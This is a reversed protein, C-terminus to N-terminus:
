PASAPVAAPHGPVGGLPRISPVGGGKMDGTGSGVPPDGRRELARHADHSVVTDLHGLLAIRRNGTGRLRALFDPAYGQTSSPLREIEAYPPVLAACVSVAEEAGHSDGSPSSVAVLAELEREARRAIRAAEAEVWAHM